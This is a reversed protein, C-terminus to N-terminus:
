KFARIEQEIPSAFMTLFKAEAALSEEVVIGIGCNYFEVGMRSKIDSLDPNRAGNRGRKEGDSGISKVIKPMGKILGHACACQSFVGGDVEGPDCETEPFGRGIKVSVHPNRAILDGVFDYGRHGYELRVVSPIRKPPQIFKALGVLVPDQDGEDTHDFLHVDVGCREKGLTRNHAGEPISRFVLQICRDSIMWVFQVIIETQGKRYGNAINFTEPVTRRRGHDVSERIFDLCDQHSNFSLRPPKEGGRKLEGAQRSDPVLAVM